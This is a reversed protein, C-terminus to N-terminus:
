GRLVVDGNLGSFEVDTKEAAHFTAAGPHAHFDSSRQIALGGQLVPLALPDGTLRGAAVAVGPAGTGAGHQCAYAGHQFVVRAQIHTAMIHRALGMQDDHVAPQFGWQIGAQKFRQACAIQGALDPNVGCGCASVNLALGKFVFTGGHDVHSAGMALDIQRGHQKIQGATFDVFQM